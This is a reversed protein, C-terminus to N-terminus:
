WAIKMPLDVIEIAMAEIAFQLWHGSPLWSIEVMEWRLCNSHVSAGNAVRWVLDPWACAHRMFERWLMSLHAM